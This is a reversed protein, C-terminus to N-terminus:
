SVRGWPQLAEAKSVFGGEGSCPGAHSWGAGGAAAPCPPLLGLAQSRGGSAGERARCPGPMGKPGQTQSHGPLTRTDRHWSRPRLPSAATTSIAPCRSAATRTGAHTEYPRRAEQGAHQCLGRGHMCGSTFLMWTFATGASM